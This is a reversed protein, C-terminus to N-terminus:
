NISNKNLLFKKFIKRIGTLLIMPNASKFSNERNKKLFYFSKKFHLEKAKKM